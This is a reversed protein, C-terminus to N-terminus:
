RERSYQRFTFYSLAAFGAAVIIRLWIGTQDAGLLVARMALLFFGLAISLYWWAYLLTKRM